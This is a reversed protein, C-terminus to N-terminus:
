GRMRGPETSPKERGWSQPAIEPVAPAPAFRPLGRSAWPKIFRAAHM